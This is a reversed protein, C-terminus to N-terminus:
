IFIVLKDNITVSKPSYYILDENIKMSQVLSLEGEGRRLELLKGSKPAKERRLVPAKLSLEASRQLELLKGSNTSSL